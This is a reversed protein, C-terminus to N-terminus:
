RSHQTTTHSRSVDLIPAGYIYSMLRRLTLEIRTDTSLLRFSLINNDTYCSDDVATYRRSNSKQQLRKQHIATHQQTPLQCGKSAGREMSVDSAGRWEVYDCRLRCADTIRCWQSVDLRKGSYEFEAKQKCYVFHRYDWCNWSSEDAPWGIVYRASTWHNWTSNCKKVDKVHIMKLAPVAVNLSPLGNRLQQFRFLLAGM